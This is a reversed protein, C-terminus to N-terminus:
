QHAGRLNGPTSVPIDRKWWIPMKPYVEGTLALDWAKLFEIYMGKRPGYDAEDAAVSAQYDEISELLYKVADSRCTELEAADPSISGTKIPFHFESQREKLKARSADINWTTTSRRLVDAGLMQEFEEKAVDRCKNVRELETNDGIQLGDAFILSIIGGTCGAWAGPLRLSSNQQIASGHILAADMKGSHRIVHTGRSECHYDWTVAVLPSSYINRLDIEPAGNTVRSSLSLQVYKEMGPVLTQSMAAVTSSAIFCLVLLTQASPSKARVKMSSYMNVRRPEGTTEPNIEVYGQPADNCDAM